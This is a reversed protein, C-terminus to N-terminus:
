CFPECPAIVFLCLLLSVRCVQSMTPFIESQSGFMLAPTSRDKTQDQLRAIKTEVQLRLLHTTAYSEKYRLRYM